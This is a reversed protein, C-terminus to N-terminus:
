VMGNMYDRAYKLVETDDGPKAKVRGINGSSPDYWSGCIIGNLIQSLPGHGGVNGGAARNMASMGAGLGSMWPQGTLLGGLTALGGLTGLLGGGGRKDRLDIVAM